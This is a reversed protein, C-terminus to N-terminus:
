CVSELRAKLLSHLLNLPDSNPFPSAQDADGESGLLSLLTSPVISGAGRWSDLVM